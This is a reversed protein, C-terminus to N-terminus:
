AVTGPAVLGVLRKGAQPREREGVSVRRPDGAVSGATPASVIPEHAWTPAAALWAGLATLGLVLLGPLRSAHRARAPKPPAGPPPPLDAPM